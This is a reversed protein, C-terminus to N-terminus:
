DGLTGDLIDYYFAEAATKTKFSSTFSVDQTIINGSKTDVTYEVYWGPGANKFIAKTPDPNVTYTGDIQKVAAGGVISQASKDSLKSFM